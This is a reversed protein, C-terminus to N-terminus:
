KCASSIMGWEALYRCAMERARRIQRESLKATLPGFSAMLNESVRDSPELLEAGCESFFSEDPHQLGLFHGIEHALATPNDM